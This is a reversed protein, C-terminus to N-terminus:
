ASANDFFAVSTCTDPRARKTAYLTKAVLNHFQVEKKPPLEKSDENVVFLNDPAASSKTGKGTPDAKDFITVIEELFEFMTIKIQRRVTYDLTMGLYKHFKGRIVAMKGSGDEFISEYDKRLHKTIKDNTKTSLHSLKCDDIHFCITMQNVGIMKNFVSLDYPNLFFGIDTLCKIFKCYYLISALMTGYLANQCQVLFQKKGKSDLTIYDKYIDPAIEVLIDVLVGQIKIFAVDKEDEVRTQRFANPINIVAVDRGEEADIICSLIVSEKAVTSM